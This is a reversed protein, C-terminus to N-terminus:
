PYGAFHIKGSPAKPCIDASSLSAYMLPTYGHDDRCNANAGQSLALRVANIDGDLCGSLLCDDPDACRIKDRRHRRVTFVVMGMTFVVVPSLLLFLPTDPVM